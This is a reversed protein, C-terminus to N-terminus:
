WNCQTQPTNFYLFSEHSYGEVGTSFNRHYNWWPDGNISEGEEFFTLCAVHSTYGLGYITSSTNSAARINVGDYSYGGYHGVAAWASAAVGTTICLAMFVVLIPRMMRMRNMQSQTETERRSYAVCSVM